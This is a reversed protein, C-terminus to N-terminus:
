LLRTLKFGIYLVIETIITIVLAHRPLIESCTLFSIYKQM